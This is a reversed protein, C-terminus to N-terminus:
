FSLSLLLFLLLFLSHRSSYPPLRSSLVYSEGTAGVCCMLCPRGGDKCCGCLWGTGEEQGDRRSGAETSQQKSPSDSQSTGRLPWWCLAPLPAKTEVQFDSQKGPSTQSLSATAPPLSQFALSGPQAAPLASSGAQCLETGGLATQSPLFSLFLYEPKLVVLQTSLSPLQSGTPPEPSKLAIWWSRGVCDKYRSCRFLLSPCCRTVGDRVGARGGAMHEWYLWRHRSQLEGIIKNRDSAGVNNGPTVVTGVCLCSSDCSLTECQLLSKARMLWLDFARSGRFYNNEGHLVPSTSHSSFQNLTASVPGMHSELLLLM